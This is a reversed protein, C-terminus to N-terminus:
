DIQDAEEHVIMEPMLGEIGEKKDQQWFTLKEKLIKNEAELDKFGQDYDGKFGNEVERIFALSQLPKVLNFEQFTVINFGYDAECFQCDKNFPPNVWRCNLCTKFAIDNPKSEILKIEKM